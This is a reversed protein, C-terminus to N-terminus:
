IDYNEELELEYAIASMVYIPALETRLIRPGLTIPVFNAKTLIKVENDSIGGEPGILILINSYNNKHAKKIIQKFTGDTPLVKEYAFLCISFKQCYDQFEKFTRLYTVNLKKIRHAVESAEKAIKNLREIKKESKEDTFKVTSREMPFFLYENAGLMSIKDIVEEMKTRMVLGQAITIKIPLETKEEKITLIKTIVLNNEIRVIESYYINSEDSLELQDGLNMRMVKVIHHSDESNLYVLNDKIQEPKIIYRQM